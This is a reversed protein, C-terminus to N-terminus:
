SASLQTKHDTVKKSSSRKTKQNKHGNQLVLILRVGMKLSFSRCALGDFFELFRLLM